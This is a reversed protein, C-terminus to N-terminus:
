SIKIEKKISKYRGSHEVLLMPHKGTHRYDHMGIHMCQRTYTPLHLWLNVISPARKREM